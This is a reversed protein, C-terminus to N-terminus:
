SKSILRTIVAIPVCMLGIVLVLTFFFNFQPENALFQVVNFSWVGGLSITEAYSNTCVAMCLVFVTLFLIVKKM